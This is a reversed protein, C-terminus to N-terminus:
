TYLKRGSAIIVCVVWNVCCLPHRQWFTLENLGLCFPRWNASSLKMRMEKFSFTQIGISIEICNTGLPGIFLIGANTWIIAQRRGPSLGNDSGLVTLKGVCIHTVRGWHILMSIDLRCSWLQWVTHELAYQQSFIYANQHFNWRLTNMFSWNIVPSWQKLYHSPLTCAFLWWMFSPQGLENVRIFAVLEEHDWSNGM